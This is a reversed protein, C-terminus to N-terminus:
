SFLWINFIFILHLGISIPDKPHAGPLLTVAGGQETTRAKGPTANVAVDNITVAIEGTMVLTVM